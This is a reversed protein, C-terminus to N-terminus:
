LHIVQHYFMQFVLQQQVQVLILQQLPLLSSMLGLMLHQIQYQKIVKFKNTSLHLHLQQHITQQHLTVKIVTITATNGYLGTANVTAVITISASGGNVLNGITWTSGSQEQQHHLV